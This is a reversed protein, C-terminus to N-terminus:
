AVKNKSFSFAQQGASPRFTRANEKVDVLKLRAIRCGQDYLYLEANDDVPHRLEIRQRIYATPVEYIRGKFSITADNNVIREHRVLFIEDLETECLRRIDVRAACAQYRDIPKQDIGAHHRHHYDEGLWLAFAVNLEDLTVSPGLGSLFRENVTRFFREIKGRSPPDYPKSHILSIKAQACAKTLLDSSFAAGNDVYFRAPLGYALFADKLVLTLASVTEHVNFAHGVIMRSHDDIIACLIAKQSRGGVQVAPGHM